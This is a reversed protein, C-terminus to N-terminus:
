RGAPQPEPPIDLHEAVVSQTARTAVDMATALGRADHVYSLLDTIVECALEPVMDADFRRWGDPLDYLPGEGIWGLATLLHALGREPATSSLVNLPGVTPTQPLPGTRQM